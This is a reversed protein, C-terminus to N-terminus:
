IFNTNTTTYFDCNPSQQVTYYHKLLLLESFFQGKQVSLNFFREICFLCNKIINRM